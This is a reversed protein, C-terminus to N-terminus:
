YKRALTRATATPMSGINTSHVGISRITLSPGPHRRVYTKYIWGQKRTEPVFVSYYGHSKETTVLELLIPKDPEGPTVEALIDTKKNPEKYITADRRVELYDAAESASVALLLVVFLVRVAIM